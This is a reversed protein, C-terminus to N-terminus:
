LVLCWSGKFWERNPSYTKKWATKRRAAGPLGHVNSHTQSTTNFRRKGWLFCVASRTQQAYIQEPLTFPQNKCTFAQHQNAESTNALASAGGTQLENQIRCPHHITSRLRHTWTVTREQQLAATQQVAANIQEAPRCRWSQEQLFDPASGRRMNAAKFMQEWKTDYEVDRWLVLWSWREEPEQGKVTRWGTTLKSLTPFSCFIPRETVASSFFTWELAAICWLSAVCACSRDPLDCITLLCGLRRALMRQHRTHAWTKQCSPRGPASVNVERDRFDVRCRETFCLLQCSGWPANLHVEFAWVVLCCLNQSRCSTNPFMSKINSM